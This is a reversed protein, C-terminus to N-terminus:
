SLLFYSAVLLEQSFSRLPEKWALGFPHNQCESVSLFFSNRGQLLLFKFPVSMQFAHNSFYNVLSSVIPFFRKSQVARFLFAPIVLPSILATNLVHISTQIYLVNFIIIKSYLFSAKKKDLGCQFQESTLYKLIDSSSVQLMLSAKSLSLITLMSLQSTNPFKM